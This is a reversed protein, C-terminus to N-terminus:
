NPAADLPGIVEWNGNNTKKLKVKQGGKLKNVIDVDCKATIISGDVDVSVTGQYRMKSEDLKGGIADNLSFRMHPGKYVGIATSEKTENVTSKQPMSKSKKSQPEGFSSTFMLVVSVVVLIVNRMAIDGKRIGTIGLRNYVVMGDKMIKREMNTCCGLEGAGPWHVQNDQFRQEGTDTHLAQNPSKQRNNKM